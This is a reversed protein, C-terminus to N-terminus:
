QIEHTAINGCSPLPDPDVRIIRQGQVCDGSVARSLGLVIASYCKTRAHRHASSRVYASLNMTALILRLRISVPSKSIWSFRGTCRLLSLGPRQLRRMCRRHYYEEPLRASPAACCLAFALCLCSTFSSLSSNHPPLSPTLLTTSDAVCIPATHLTEKIDKARLRQIRWFHM